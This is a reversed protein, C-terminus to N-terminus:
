ALALGTLYTKYEAANNFCPFDLKFLMFLTDGGEKTLVVGAGRVFITSSGDFRLTWIADSIETFAVVGVEGPVEYNLSM